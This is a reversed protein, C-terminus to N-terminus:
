AFTTDALSWDFRNPGLYTKHLPPGYRLFGIGLEQVLDFDTAWQEYHGCSAMEDIRTRGNNITPNSNEIGTAFYIGAKAPGSHRLAAAKPASRAVSTATTREIM